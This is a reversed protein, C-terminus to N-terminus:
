FGKLVISHAASFNCKNLDVTLAVGYQSWETSVGRRECTNDVEKKFKQTIRKREKYVDIFYKCVNLGFVKNKVITTSIFQDITDNLFHM